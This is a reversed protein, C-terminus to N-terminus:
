LRIDEFTTLPVVVPEERKRTALREVFTELPDAPVYASFDYGTAEALDAVRIQFLGFDGLTFGELAERRSRKELLARVLQGQSLLYATAHLSVGDAAVAAVLKWFELPVIGGDICIEDADETESRLVPGTFVSARFGHIRASNLIYSELGLWQSRGRNLDKHQPVANVYHFTDRDARVAADPDDIPSWNPDERRVMHGRDVDPDAFNAATLQIERPIRPDSFWQDDGRKLRVSRAGDINVATIIPLRLAASYKVGFHTYRLENPEPPDDSPAALQLRESQTVGPWPTQLTESLFGADFGRRDALDTLSHHGDAREAHEAPLRSVVSRRGALAAGLTEASVAANFKGYQGAFHLGIVRGDSLGILPSGSSGGLSTCDHSLQVGEGAHLIRGPAFRKVDYLGRFYFDQDDEANRRDYAPYGVVAVLDGPIPKVDSLILPDPLAFASTEVSLIAIDAETNDALYDIATVPATLTDGRTEQHEEGFDIAAGMVAGTPARLFVARGDSRTRAVLQAVHRNTVVLARNTSPRDVVWATGGWTRSANIFEVRGVSTVCSEVRRIMEATGEPFDPLPELLVRDQQVLLPPRGVFQVIAELAAVPLVGAPTEFAIRDNAGIIAKLSPGQAATAMEVPLRGDALAQAVAERIVPTLRLTLRESRGANMQGGLADPKIQGRPGDWKKLRV